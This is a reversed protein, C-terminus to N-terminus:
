FHNPEIWSPFARLITQFIQTLEELSKQSVWEGAQHSKEGVPGLIVTPIKQGILNEDAVSFGYGLKHSGYRQDLLAVIKKVIM